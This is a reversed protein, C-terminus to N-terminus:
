NYDDMTMMHLHVIVVSMPHKNSLLAGYHHAVLGVKQYRKAKKQSTLHKRLIKSGAMWDPYFVRWLMIKSCIYDGFISIPEVTYLMAM